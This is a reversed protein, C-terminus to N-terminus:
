IHLLLIDFYVFLFNVSSFPNSSLDVIWIPSKLMNREIVSLLCVFMQIFISCQFFMILLNSIISMPINYRIHKGFNVMNQPVFGTELEQVVPPLILQCLPVFLKPLQKVNDVLISCISERHRLM